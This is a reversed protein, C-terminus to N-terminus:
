DVTREHNHVKPPLRQVRSQQRTSTPYPNDVKIHNDGDGGQYGAPADSSHRGWHVTSQESADDSGPLPSHTDSSPTKTM